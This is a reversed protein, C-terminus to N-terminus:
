KTRLNVNSGCRLLSYVVNSLGLSAAQFLPTEGIKTQANLDAGCSKMLEITSEYLGADVPEHTCFLHLPSSGNNTLAGAQAKGDKLLLRCIELAQPSQSQCAHHLSTFGENDRKNSDAGLSLLVGVLGGHGEAAAIQIAKHININM